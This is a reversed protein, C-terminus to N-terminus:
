DKEKSPIRGSEVAPGAFANVDIAGVAETQVQQFPLADITGTLEFLRQVARPGRILSLERGDHECRLATLVIEALGTSDIFMLGSLDLTVSTPEAPSECIRSIARHLVPVSAADLEGSLRLTRRGHTESEEIELGSFRKTM